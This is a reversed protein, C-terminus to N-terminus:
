VYELVEIGPMKEGGLYALMAGGGTSVFDVKDLAKNKELIEVTEGGGIVVYADSSLVAQLIEYSGKAYQEEEFKGM